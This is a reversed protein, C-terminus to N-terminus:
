LHVPISEKEERDVVVQVTKPASWIWVNQDTLQIRLNVQYEGPKTIHSLDATASLHQGVSSSRVFNAVGAIKVAVVGIPRPLVLGSQLVGAARVHVTYTQIAPPDSAYVVGVWMGCAVVIAILKLQFNRTIFRPLRDIM